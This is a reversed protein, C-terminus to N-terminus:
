LTAKSSAWTPICIQEIADLNMIISGPVKSERKTEESDAVGTEDVAWVDDLVLSQVGVKRVKGRYVWNYGWIAIYRNDWKEDALVDKWLRNGVSCSDDLGDSLKAESAAWNPICIQEISDLNLILSSPIKTEQKVKSDTVLGTEEVAWTDRLTLTQADVACLKGRYVWNWSWVAVYRGLFKEEVIFEKM